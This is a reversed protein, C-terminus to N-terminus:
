AAHLEQAFRSPALSALPIERPPQDPGVLFFSPTGRVGLRDAQASARQLAELVRPSDRAALAAAVDTGPIERMLRTLYADTAYGSNEQGQRGFALEVFQWLRDQMGMAEAAKGLRESDPGVFQLDRFVLKVRGTRVFQQILPPLVVGNVAGCFPCQLDAFELLAVPAAPNGLTVGHQPIGDLLALTSGGRPRASPELVRPSAARSSRQPGFLRSATGGASLLLLVIWVVSGRRATRRLREM